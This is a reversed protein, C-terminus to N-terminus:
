SNCILVSPRLRLINKVADYLTESVPQPLSSRVNLILLAYSLDPRCTFTVMAYILEGIATRYWMPQVAKMVYLWM